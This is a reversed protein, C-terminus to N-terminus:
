RRSCRLGNEWFKLLVARHIKSNQREAALLGCHGGISYGAFKQGGSCIKALPPLRECTQASVRCAIEVAHSGATADVWSDPAAAYHELDLRSPGLSTPARMM